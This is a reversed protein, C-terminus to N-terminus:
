AEMRGAMGLHKKLSARYRFDLIKISMNSLSTYNFNNSFNSHKVIYFVSLM